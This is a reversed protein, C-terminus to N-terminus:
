GQAEREAIRLQRARVLIADELRRPTDEAVPASVWAGGDLRERFVAVRLAQPTLASDSIFATVKFREGPADPAAGWDTAIVGAFPDTSAIPLFGLTDLSAQWLHRNVAGTVLQGSPSGIGVGGVQRGGAIDMISGPSRMPNAERRDVPPFDATARIGNSCGAALAILSLAAIRSANM